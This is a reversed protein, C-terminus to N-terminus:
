REDGRVRISENLAGRLRMPLESRRSKPLCPRPNDYAAEFGTTVALIAQDLMLGSLVYKSSLPRSISRNKVEEDGLGVPGFGAARVCAIEAKFRDSTRTREPLVRSPKKCFQPQRTNM